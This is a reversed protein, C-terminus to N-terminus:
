PFMFVLGTYVGAAAAIAQGNLPVRYHLYPAPDGPLYHGLAYHEHWVPHMAMQYPLGIVHMGFKALSAAPQILRPYAHGYRELTVDEFYLPHHYLNSACWQFNIQAFDRDTSGTGPLPRVDPCRFRREDALDSPQPCLYEGPQTGTPSYRYDPQISAIPRFITAQEDETPLPMAPLQSLRHRPLSWEPEPPILLDPSEEASNRADEGASGSSRDTVSAGDGDGPEPSDAMQPPEGYPAPVPIVQAPVPIPTLEEPFPRYPRPDAILERQPTPEADPPMPRWDANPSFTEPDSDTDGAPSSEEPEGVPISDEPVSERIEAPRPPSAEDNGFLPVPQEDGEVPEPLGRPVQSESGKARSPMWQDRIEQWRADASREKLRDLPSPSPSSPQEAAVNMGLVVICALATGARM